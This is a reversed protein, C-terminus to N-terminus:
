LILRVSALIIRTADEILDNNSDKVKILNKEITMFQEYTGNTYENPKQIDM